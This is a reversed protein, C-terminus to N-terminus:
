TSLAGVSYDMSQVTVLIDNRKSLDGTVSEIGRLTENTLNKNVISIILRSFSTQEDTWFSAFLPMKSLYASSNEVGVVVLSSSDVGTLIQIIDRFIDENQIFVHIISKTIQEGGNFEVDKDGLFKEYVGEPTKEALINDIAKPALLIQSITSLLRVHKNSEVEPAIIFVILKVKQGDLSNFDIGSQVTVVGVVFDTVSKLRCHPIAVGKGVGTSSLSERADLAEFVDEESISQLIKSNKAAKAVERLIESKNSSQSNVIICDKCLVDTLKM